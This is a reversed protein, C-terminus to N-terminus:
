RPRPRDAGGSARRAKVRPETQVDTDVGLDDTDVGTVVLHREHRRGSPRGSGKSVVLEDQTGPATGTRGGIGPKPLTLTRRVTSSASARADSTRPVGLVATTMPAPKMPRSVASFRERWSMTTVTTSAM